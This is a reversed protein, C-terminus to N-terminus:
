DEQRLGVAGEGRRSCAAHSLMDHLSSGHCPGAVLSAVIDQAIEYFDVENLAAQALDQVPGNSLEATQTALDTEIQIALSSVANDTDGCNLQENAHEQYTNYLGEDNDIWMSVVNTEYSM